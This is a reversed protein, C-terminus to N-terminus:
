ETKQIQELIDYGKKILLTAEELQNQYNVKTPKFLDTIDVDFMNAMVLLLDISPYTKGATINTITATTLNLKTAMEERSIGNLKMYHGVKLLDPIEKEKLKKSKM